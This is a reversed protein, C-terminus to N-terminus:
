FSSSGSDASDAAADATLQKKCRPRSSSGAAAAFDRTARCPRVADNANM